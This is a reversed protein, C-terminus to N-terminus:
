PFLIAILTRVCSGIKSVFLLLSNTNTTSQLPEILPLYYRYRKKGNKEIYSFNNEMDKTSLTQLKKNSKKYVSWLHDEHALIQSGNSFTVLRDCISEESVGIIKTPKGNLGYVSDGILSHNLSTMHVRIQHTRGTLEMLKRSLTKIHPAPVSNQYNSVIFLRYFLYLDNLFEKKTFNKDIM